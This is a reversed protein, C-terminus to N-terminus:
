NSLFRDDPITLIIVVHGTQWKNYIDFVHKVYIQGYIGRLDLM